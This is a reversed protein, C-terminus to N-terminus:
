AINTTTDILHQLFNEWKNKEKSNAIEKLDNVLAKKDKGSVKDDKYVEDVFDGLYPVIQNDHYLGDLVESVRKIYTKKVISLAGTYGFLTKMNQRREKKSFIYGFFRLTHVGYIKGEKEHYHIVDGAKYLSAARAAIRLYSKLAIGSIITDIAKEHKETRPFDFYTMNSKYPYLLKNADMISVMIEELNEVAIKSAEEETCGLSKSFLIKMNKAMEPLEMEEKMNLLGIEEISLPMIEITAQKVDSDKPDKPIKYSKGKAYLKQIEEIQNSM